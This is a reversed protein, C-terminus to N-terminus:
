ETTGLYRASIKRFEDREHLRLITRDLLERLDSGSKLGFGYGHNSFTGPLVMAKGAPLKGVAYQLIPAEFVVAEVEGKALGETAKQVDDYPTFPISRSDLYAAGGSPKKVTGVKVKPLDNPGNVSSNLKSVTLESSLSATVGSIGM